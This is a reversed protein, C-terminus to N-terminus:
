DALERELLAHFTPALERLADEETRPDFPEGDETIWQHNRRELGGVLTHDVAVVRSSRTDWAIADGSFDTTLVVFGADVLPLYYTSNERLVDVLPLVKVTKLGASLVGYGARVLERFDSPFALEAPLGEPPLPKEGWFRPSKRIADVIADPTM